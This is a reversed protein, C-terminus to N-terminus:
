FSTTFLGHVNCYAYVQREPYACQPCQGFVVSPEEGPNLHKICINKGNVLAVWEIYHVDLMPHDVEGVNVKVHSGEVEVVPVHKEAAGDSKAPDLLEMAEGCCHVPVNADKVVYVINGCHNCRYFKVTEM